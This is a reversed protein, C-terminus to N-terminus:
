KKRSLYSPLQLDGKLEVVADVSDLHEEDVQTSITRAERYGAFERLAEPLRLLPKDGRVSAAVNMVVDGILRKSGKKETRLEHRWSVQRLLVRRGAAEPLGALVPGIRPLKLHEALPDLRLAYDQMEQYVAELRRGAELAAEDPQEAEQALREQRDAEFRAGAALVLCFGAYLLLKLVRGPTKRRDLCDLFRSAPLFDATKM